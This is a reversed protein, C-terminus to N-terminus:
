APLEAGAPRDEGALLDPLAAAAEPLADTTLTHVASM